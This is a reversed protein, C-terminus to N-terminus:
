YRFVIDLKKDCDLLAKAVKFRSFLSKWIKRNSFDWYRETLLNLMYVEDDCIAINIM